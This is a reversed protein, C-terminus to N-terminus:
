WRPPHGRGPGITPPRSRCPRVSPPVGLLPGRRHERRRDRDARPEPGGQRRAEPRVREGPRDGRRVRGARDRGGRRVPAPADGSRRGAAVAGRSGGPSRRRGRVEAELGFAVSAAISGWSCWWPPRCAPCPGNSCSRPGYHRHSRGRRDAPADRQAAPHHRAPGGRRIRRRGRHGPAQSDAQHLDAVGARVRLRHARIRLLPRHPGAEAGRGGDLPPRCPRLAATLTVYEATGAPASSRSPRRPCSPSPRRCRSSSSARAARVRMPWSDSPRRTSRRRPPCGPWGPTPWGKPCWSRACRSAPSSTSGSGAGSTPAPVWDLIPWRRTTPRDQVPATM